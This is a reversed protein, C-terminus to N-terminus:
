RGIGNLWDLAEVALKPPPWSHRGQFERLLCPTGQQRLQRDLEQMERYNFDHLGVTGFLPVDSVDAPTLWEPLGGGCAIVGMLKISLMKGLGCAARAGGSFGAAFIKQDDIALRAHTDRWIAQAAKLIDEWPGNRANNSGVLIYGFKEAGERFLTVPIMGRGGPDFCYIVPWPRGSHYTAPLYLAYSQTFDHQCIVPDLIEGSSLDAGLLVTRLLWLLVALLFVERGAGSTVKAFKM